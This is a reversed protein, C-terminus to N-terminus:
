FHLPKVTTLGRKEKVGRRRQTVGGRLLTSSSNYKNNVQIKARQVFDELANNIFFHVVM